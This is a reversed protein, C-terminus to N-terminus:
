REDKEIAYEFGVATLPEWLLRIFDDIETGPHAERKGTEAWDRAVNVELFEEVTRGALEGHQATLERLLGATDRTGWERRLRDIIAQQPSGAEFVDTGPRKLLDGVWGFLILFEDTMTPGQAETTSATALDYPLVSRRRAQAEM